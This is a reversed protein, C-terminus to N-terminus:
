LTVQLVYGAKFPQVDTIKSFYFTAVCSPSSSQNKLSVADLKSTSKDDLSQFDPQTELKAAFDQSGRRAFLQFGSTPEKTQPVTESDGEPLILGREVMYWHRQSPGYLGSSGCGAFTLSVSYSVVGKTVVLVYYYQSKYPRKEVFTVSPNSSNFGGLNRSSRSVDYDDPSHIPLARARYGIWEICHTENSLAPRPRALHVVCDSVTLEFSDTDDPVFFKLYSSRDKVTFRQPGNNPLILDVEETRSWLAVSGLSYRCRHRLGTLEDDDESPGSVLYAAVFWSGPLPNYVHVVKSNVPRYETVVCMM